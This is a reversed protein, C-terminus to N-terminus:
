RDGFIDFLAQEQEPSLPEEKAPNMKNICEKIAIDEDQSRNQEIEEYAREADAKMDSLVAPGYAKQIEENAYENELTICVCQDYLKQYIDELQRKSLNQANRMTDSYVDTIEFRDMNGPLLLLEEEKLVKEIDKGVTDYLDELSNKGFRTLLDEQMNEALIMKKECDNFLEAYATKWEEISLDNDLVYDLKEKLETRNM